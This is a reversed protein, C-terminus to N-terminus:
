ERLLSSPVFICWSYLRRTNTDIDSSIRQSGQALIVWLALQHTGPVMRPGLVSSTYVAPAPPPAVAAPFLGHSATFADDDDDLRLFGMPKLPFIVLRTWCFPGWWTLRFNMCAESSKSLSCWMARLVTSDKSAQHCADVCPWHHDHDPLPQTNHFCTLDELFGVQLSWLTWPYTLMWAQPFTIWPLLEQLICPLNAQPGQATSHAIM